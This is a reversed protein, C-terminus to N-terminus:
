ANKDSSAPPSVFGRIAGYEECCEPHSQRNIILHRFIESLVHGYDRYRVRKM